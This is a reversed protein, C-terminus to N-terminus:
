GASLLRKAMCHPPQRGNPNREAGLSKLMMASKNDYIARCFYIDRPDKVVLLSILWLLSM